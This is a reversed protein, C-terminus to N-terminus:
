FSEGSRLHSFVQAFHASKLMGKVGSVGDDDRQQLAAPGGRPVAFM